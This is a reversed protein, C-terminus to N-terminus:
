LRYPHRVPAAVQSQHRRIEHVDVIEKNIRLIGLVLKQKRSSLDAIKAESTQFRAFLQVAIQQQKRRHAMQVHLLQVVDTEVADVAREVHCVSNRDSVRVQLFLRCRDSASSHGDVERVRESHDTEAILLTVRPAAQGSGTTLRRWSRIRSAGAVTVTFYHLQKPFFKKM